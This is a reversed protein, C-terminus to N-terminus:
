GSRHLVEIVDTRSLIGALRGRDMVPLRGINHKIMIKQIEELSTEPEISIVRSSMYSKIPAHELDHLKAKDLDRRSIIGVLENNEVVPFGTHGYRIIFKGAEEVTTDPSITIVPSTMMMRATIAPKVIQRLNETAHKLVAALESAKVTASGAQEHGGGGWENLLPLFNIRESGARGVIYVRKQMEVITLVADAGTIDLLKRTITSLGGQYNKQQYSSVVIHLGDMEYESSNSFLHSLIDQQQEFLIQNSFRQIIELNMGQEMLFGAAQFDKATTNAHAFSGTDTYLGLGFVTAEFSSIELTRQRIEEILLTVAAGVPEIIGHDCAMNGERTPHHDYIIIKLKARDLKKAFDGIRSFSATDVLIMESVASWDILSPQTFDLQDRYIAMFQRVTVSQQDSIVITADPYLKKAALMSALADFDTNIHSIIIQM